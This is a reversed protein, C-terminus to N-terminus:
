VKEHWSLLVSMAQGGGEGGGRSHVQSFGTAQPTINNRASSAPAAQAMGKYSAVLTLLICSLCQMSALRLSHLVFAPLHTDYMYKMLVDLAETGGPASYIRSLLQAIEAQRISQLVELVIALYAEQILTSQDAM